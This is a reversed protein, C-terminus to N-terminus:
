TPLWLYVNCHWDSIILQFVSKRWKDITEIEIAALLLSFEEISQNLKDKLEIVWFMTIM